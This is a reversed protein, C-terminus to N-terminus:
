CYYKTIKRVIKSEKLSIQKSIQRSNKKKCKKHWRKNPYVIEKVHIQTM